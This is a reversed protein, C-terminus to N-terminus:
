TGGLPLEGQEAKPAAGVRSALARRAEEVKADGEPTRPVRYSVKGRATSRSLPVDRPDEGQAIRLARPRVDVTGEGAPDTTEM